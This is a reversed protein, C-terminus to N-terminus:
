SRREQDDHLAGSISAVIKTMWDRAPQWLPWLVPSGHTHGLMRVADVPVGAQKLRQAYAEGSDRLVDYEATMVTAPALGTLDRAHLPSGYPDQVDHHEGLYQANFFAMDKRSLGYGEGFQEVSPQDGAGRSIDAVPVELLQLRLAPGGRDRAMLAVVAALNGGASEGGVALRSADIGLQEANEAVFRLAAYCDEAATPFTHEPALRYEVTVVACAAHRCIYACKAANVVSDISGFVFGGGHFHVFAPYPGAADPTYLRITVQGGQVAVGHDESAVREVTMGLRRMKADHEVAIRQRLESLELGENRRALEEDWAILEQIEQALVPTAPEPSPAVVRGNGSRVPLPDTLEGIFFSDDGGRFGMLAWQGPATEVLKGAYVQGYPTGPEFVPGVAPAYPGLEGDSSLLYSGTQGPVGVRALRESSHDEALCSILLGHKGNLRVLQPVEAQAFEAHMEIPPLVEWSILDRSRAHAVIGAADAAATLSRATILAHFFGDDEELRFLWPDRWSQDRWRNLDLTEYWRADAEIVPNAAHKEWHVLDNSTALGIRQILGDDATSIGTYLMQWRGEHEIVSGTWTAIDDWAGSEGPGLADPLILWDKLDRSVAHGVSANHHRRAPEGLERPAQLYFIHHQDGSQALWFDWVWKDALRLTM